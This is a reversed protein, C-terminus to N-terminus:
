QMYMTPQCTSIKCFSSKEISRWISVKAKFLLIIYIIFAFSVLVFELYITFQKIVLLAAHVVGMCVYM